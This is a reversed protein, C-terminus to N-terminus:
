GKAPPTSPVCASERIARRRAIRRAQSFRKLFRDRPRGSLPPEGRLARQENEAELARQMEFHPPCLGDVQAVKPCPTENRLIWACTV